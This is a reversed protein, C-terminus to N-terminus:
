GLCGLGGGRMSCDNPKGCCDHFLQAWRSAHTRAPRRPAPLLQRPAAPALAGTAGLHRFIPTYLHCPSLSRRVASRSLPLPLSALSRPLPHRAPTTNSLRASPQLSLPPRTSCHPRRLGGCPPPPVGTSFQPHDPCRLLGRRFVHWRGPPRPCRSPALHFSGILLFLRALGSPPFSPLPLRPPLAACPASSAGGCALLQTGAAAAEASGHATCRIPHIRTRKASSPVTLLM